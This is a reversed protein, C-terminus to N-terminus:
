HHPQSQAAGASPASEDTGITADEGTIEIRTGDTLGERRDAILRSAATLGQTVEVLTPTQIAGLTVPVRHAVGGAVDAVWVSSGGDDPRWWNGHSSCGTSTPRSAGAVGIGARSVDRRGADRTQPSGAACRHQSESGAHEEPHEGVGTLFLM